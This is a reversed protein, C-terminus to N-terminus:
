KKKGGPEGRWVRQGETEKRSSGAQSAQATDMKSLCPKRLLITKLIENVNNLMRDPTDSQM